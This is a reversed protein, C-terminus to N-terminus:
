SFLWHYTLFASWLIPIVLLYSYTLYLLVFLYITTFLIFIFGNGEHRKNEDHLDIRIGFNFFWLLLSFIYFIYFWFLAINHKSQIYNTYVVYTVISVSIISGIILVEPSPGGIDINYQRHQDIIDDLIAVIIIITTVALIIFSILRLDLKGIIDKNVWNDKRIDDGYEKHHGIIDRDYEGGGRMIDGPPRFDPLESM